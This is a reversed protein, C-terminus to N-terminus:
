VVAASLALSLPGSFIIINNSRSCGVETIISMSYRRSSRGTRCCQSGHCLEGTHSAYPSELYGVSTQHQEHLHRCQISGILLMVTCHTFCRQCRVIDKCSSCLDNGGIFFTVLKWDAAFKGPGLARTMREVLLNAQTPM